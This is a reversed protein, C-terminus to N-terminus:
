GAARADQPVPVGLDARRPLLRDASRGLARRRRLAAAPRRDRRLEARLRLRAARRLARRSHPLRGGAPAYPGTTAAVSGPETAAGTTEVAMGGGVCSGASSAIHRRARSRKAASRLRPPRTGLRRRRWSASGLRIMMPPSFHPVVLM